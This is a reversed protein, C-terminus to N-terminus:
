GPWNNATVFIQQTPDPQIFLHQAPLGCVRHRHKVGASKGAGRGVEKTCEQITRCEMQKIHAVPSDLRQGIPQLHMLNCHHVKIGRQQPDPQRLEGPLVVEWIQAQHSRRM